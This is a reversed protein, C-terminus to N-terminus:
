VGRPCWDKVVNPALQDGHGAGAVEAAWGGVVHGDSAEQAREVGGVFAPVQHVQEPEADVVGPAPIRQHGRPHQHHIQDDSITSTNQQIQGNTHSIHRLPM